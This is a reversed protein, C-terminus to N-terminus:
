PRECLMGGQSTTRKGTDNDDREQGSEKVKWILGYRVAIEFNHLSLRPHRYMPAQLESHGSLPERENLRARLPTAFIIPRSYDLHYQGLKRGPLFATGM